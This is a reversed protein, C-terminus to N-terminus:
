KVIEHDYAGWFQGKPLYGKVDGFKARCWAPQCSLIQGVTGAEVRAVVPSGDSAEDYVNRTGGTVLLARKGTLTSKHVWGESGEWDRVRRWVDFEATIEVPVGEKRFVWEIPYRTGPGTRLNVEDARLSAFRPLPFGSAGKPNDEGESALVIESGSFACSLAFFFLFRFVKM